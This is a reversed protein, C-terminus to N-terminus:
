ESPEHNGILKWEPAYTMRMVSMGVSKPNYVTRSKDPLVDIVKYISHPALAHAVKDGLKLNEFEDWTM